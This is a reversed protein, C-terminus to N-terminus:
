TPSSIGARLLPLIVNRCRFMKWEGAHLVYTEGELNCTANAGFQMYRCCLSVSVCAAVVEPMVSLAVCASRGANDCIMERLVATHEECNSANTDLQSSSMHAYLIHNFDNMTGV